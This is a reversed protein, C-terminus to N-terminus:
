LKFSTKKSAEKHIEEIEKQLAVIVNRFEEFEDSAEPLSEAVGCTTPSNCLVRICLFDDWCKRAKEINGAMVAIVAKYLPRRADSIEDNALCNCAEASRIDGDYILMEVMLMELEYAEHTLGDKLAKDRADRLIKVAEAEKGSMEMKAVLRELEHFDMEEKNTLKSLLTVLEAKAKLFTGGDVRASQADLARQLVSRGGRIAAMSVSRQFTRRTGSSSPAPAAKAAAAKGGSYKRRIAVIAATTVAVMVAGELRQRTMLNKAIWGWFSQQQQKQQPPQTRVAVQRQQKNNNNDVDRSQDTGVRVLSM